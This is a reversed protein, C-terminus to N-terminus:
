GTKDTDKKPPLDAVSAGHEVAPADFEGKPKLPADAVSAGHEVAVPEDKVEEYDKVDKVEGGPGHHASETHCPGLVGDELSFIHGPDRVMGDIQARALLRYRKSPKPAPVAEPKTDPNTETPLM